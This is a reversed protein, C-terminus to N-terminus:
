VQNKMRNNTSKDYEKKQSENMNEYAEKELQSMNTNPDIGNDILTKAEPEEKLKNMHSNYAGVGIFGIVILGIIGLIIILVKDM